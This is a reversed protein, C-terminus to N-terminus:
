VYKLGFDEPRIFIWYGEQGGYQGYVIAYDLNKAIFPKCTEKVLSLSVLVDTYISANTKVDAIINNKNYVTRYIEFGRIM